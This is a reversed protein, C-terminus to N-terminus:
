PSKACALRETRPILRQGDAADPALGGESGVLGRQASEGLAKACCGRLRGTEAQRDLGPLILAQM